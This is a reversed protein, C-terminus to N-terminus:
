GRTRLLISKLNLGFVARSASVNIQVPAAPQTKIRIGRMVIPHLFPAEISETTLTVDTGRTKWWLWIQVGKSVLVPAFLIVLLVALALAVVAIRLRTRTVM